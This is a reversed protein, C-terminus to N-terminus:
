KPEYNLGSPLNMASCAKTTITDGDVDSFTDTPLVYVIDENVIAKIDPIPKIEPPTNSVQLTIQM